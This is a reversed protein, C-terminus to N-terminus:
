AGAKVLTGNIEEVFIHGLDPFDPTFSNCCHSLIIGKNLFKKEQEAQKPNQSCLLFDIIPYGLFETYIVHFIEYRDQYKEQLEQLKDKYEPPIEVTAGSASCLIIGQKQKQIVDDGLGLAKMYLETYNIHRNM